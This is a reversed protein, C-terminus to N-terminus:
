TFNLILKVLYSRVIKLCIVTQDKGHLRMHVILLLRIVPFIKIKKNFIVEVFKIPLVIKRYVMQAHQKKM